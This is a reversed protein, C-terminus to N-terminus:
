NNIKLIFTFDGGPPNLALNGAVLQGNEITPNCENSHDGPIIGFFARGKAYRALSKAVFGMTWRLNSEVIHVFKTGNQETVFLDIGVPGEYKHGIIDNISKTLATQLENIWTEDIHEALINHLEEQSDVTNGVYQGNAKDTAFISLGNYKVQGNECLFLMAFDFHNDARKEIMVSGQRRITGNARRVAEAFHTADVFTVGRGSSSWPSKIVASDMKVILNQLSETDSVEIASPWIPFNVLQMVRKGIQTATRRHSLERYCKLTTTDPMADTNFGANIFVKKSAESWGWPTPRLNFDSHNWVNAGIGFSLQIFRLWADNIGNCFIYDNPSAMWLPIAEGSRRLKVAAPPATFNKSGYALAIDNEPYFLWLKNNM